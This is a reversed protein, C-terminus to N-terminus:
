GEASLRQLDASKGMVVLIDGPSLTYNAAPMFLAAGTQAKKIAIVLAQFRIRIPAEALTQGMFSKPAPIEIVEYDEGLPFFDLLNPRVIRWAMREATEREPFFVESVGLSRLIEAHDENAAKARISKVGLKKLHLACLISGALDDGLSVVVDDIDPPVVMQLTESDRADAIIAQHVEDRIAAVSHENNDIALVECDMQALTRAFHSGFNGLGIVCIQKM